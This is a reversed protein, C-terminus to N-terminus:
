RTTDIVTRGDAGPEFSNKKVIRFNFHHPMSDYKKAQAKSIANNHEAMLQSLSKEKKNM